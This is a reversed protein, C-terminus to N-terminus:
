LSIKGTEPVITIVYEKTGYSVTIKECLVSNNGNLSKTNIEKGNTRDFTILLGDSSSITHETSDGKIKYKVIPKDKGLVDTSDKVPADAGAKIWTEKYYKNDTGRYIYLYAENKGMTQIRTQGISTKIANALSRAQSNGIYGLSGVLVGIMIAMIAIIIVLEVLSLGRNDKKIM